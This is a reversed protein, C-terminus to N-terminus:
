NIYITALIITNRLVHIFKYAFKITFSLKFFLYNQLIEEYVNFM